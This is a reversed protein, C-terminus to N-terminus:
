QPLTSPRPQLLAPLQFDLSDPLRTIQHARLCIQHRSQRDQWFDRAGGESVRESGCHGSRAVAVVVVVPAAVLQTGRDKGQGQRKVKSNHSPPPEHNYQADGHIPQGILQPGLLCPM